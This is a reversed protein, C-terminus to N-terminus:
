RNKVPTVPGVPQYNKKEKRAIETLMILRISVLEKRISELENKNFLWRIIRRLLKM